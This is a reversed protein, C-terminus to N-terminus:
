GPDPGSAVPRGSEAWEQTGGAVSWADIGQARYFRTAKLSRVGTACVVYVPQGRPLEGERDVVEGLPILRAGPVHAAVYEDPQRVDVVLAGAQRAEELEDVSIELPDTM